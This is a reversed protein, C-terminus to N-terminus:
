RSAEQRRSIIEALAEVASTSCYVARRCVVAVSASSSASVLNPAIRM